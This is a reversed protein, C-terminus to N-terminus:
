HRGRCLWMSHLDPKRGGRRSEIHHWMTIRCDLKTAGWPMYILRSAISCASINSVGGFKGAAGWAEGNM